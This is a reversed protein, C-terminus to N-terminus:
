LINEAYITLIQQAFEILKLNRNNVSQRHDLPYASRIYSSGIDLDHMNSTRKYAM